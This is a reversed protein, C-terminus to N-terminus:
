LANFEHLWIQYVRFYELLKLAEDKKTINAACVTDYRQMTLQALSDRLIMEDKNLLFNVVWEKKRYALIDSIDPGTNKYEMTHCEFCKTKFLEAGLKMVSDNIPNLELKKVPGIGYPNKSRKVQKKLEQNNCSFAIAITIVILVLLKISIFHLHKM